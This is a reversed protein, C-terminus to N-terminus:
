AKRHDLLMPLPGEITPLQANKRPLKRPMSGDKGLLSLM